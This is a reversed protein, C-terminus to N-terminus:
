INVIMSKREFLHWRVRKGMSNFCEFVDGSGGVYKLDRCNIDLVEYQGSEANIRLLKEQSIM